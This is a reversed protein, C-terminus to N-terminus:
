PKPNLEGDFPHHTKQRASLIKEESLLHLFGGSENQTEEM